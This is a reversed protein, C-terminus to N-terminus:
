SKTVPDPLAPKIRYVKAGDNEFVLAFVYGHRDAWTREIPFREADLENYSEDLPDVTAVFLYAAGHRRLNKLWADYDPRRRYYGPKESTPPTYGPRTRESLEYDHFKWGFHEDINVYVVDNTYRKGYLAYPMNDGTHAITKGRVHAEIWAWGIVVDGYSRTHFRVLERRHTRQSPVSLCCVMTWAALASGALPAWSRRARAFKSLLAATSFTLVFSLGFGLVAPPLVVPLGAWWAIARSIGPLPAVHLLCVLAVAIRIASQGRHLLGCAVAATVGALAAAPLYHNPSCYPLGLWLVGVYVAPSAIVLWDSIVFSSHRIVSRAAPWARRAVGTVVVVIMLAAWLAALKHGFATSLLDLVSETPVPATEAMTQRDYAGPMITLGFMRVAMPYLASGTVLWNRIYWFGGFAVALLAGVAARAGLVSPSAIRWRDRPGGLFAPSGALLLCVALLGAFLKTGLMLGLAIAFAALSRMRRERVYDVLCSVSAVFLFALAVDVNASVSQRLAAPSLLFLCAGCLSASPGARMQIALRYVAAAGALLFPFQGVKALIDSRFPLMLWLYFLEANCPAYSPADFGFPAFCIAIRRMKMWEVPFRLHHTFDDIHNLPLALGHRLYAACVFMALAAIALAPYDYAEGAEPPMGDKVRGAKWWTLAAVGLIVVNAAVLGDCTLLGTFGLVASTLVIQGFVAICWALARRSADCRPIALSVWIHASWCVALNMAAFRTWGVWGAGSKAAAWLGIAAILSTVVLM